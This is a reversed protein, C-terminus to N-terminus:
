IRTPGSLCSSLFIVNNKALGRNVCRLYVLKESTRLGGRLLERFIYLITAEFFGFKAFTEKPAAFGGWFLPKSLKPKKSAAM